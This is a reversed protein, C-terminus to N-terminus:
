KGKYWPQETLWDRVLNGEGDVIQYNLNDSSYQFENFMVEAEELTELPQRTWLTNWQRTMRDQIKIQYSM